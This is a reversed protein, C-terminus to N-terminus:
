DQTTLSEQQKKLFYKYGSSDRASMEAKSEFLTAAKGWQDTKCYMSLLQKEAFETFEESSKMEILLREAQDYRKLDVLNMVYMERVLKKDSWLDLLIRLTTDAEEYKNLRTQTFAIKLLLGAKPETKDEIYPLADQYCELALTYLSDSSDKEALSQYAQGKIALMGGSKEGGKKMFEDLMEIAELEQDNDIMKLIHFYDKMERSSWFLHYPIWMILIFPIFVFLLLKLKKSM